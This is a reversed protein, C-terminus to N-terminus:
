EARRTLIFGVGLLHDRHTTFVRRMALVRRRVEPRRLVNGIIRVTGLLGEDAIMRRPDLLSMSTRYTDTVQFGAEDALAVWEPITLPRANVRISRALARRIEDKTGPSLDVPTLGMEHIAYVGGPRLLRAAERMIELKRRDTHMTLMAEGLVADACGAPLSTHEASAEIVQHDGAPLLASVTTVAQADSDVGVYRRPGRDLIERATIGLGPAFEVVTSGPIGIHDLLWQTTERGGPRLVTKGISALLWHGATKAVPRNAGPLTTRARTPSAM